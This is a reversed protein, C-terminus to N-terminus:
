EIRSILALDVHCTLHLFEEDIQNVTQNQGPNCNLGDGCANGTPNNIVARYREADVIMKESIARAQEM